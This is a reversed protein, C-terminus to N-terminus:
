PLPMTKFDIVFVGTRGMAFPKQTAYDRECSVRTESVDLGGACVSVTPVQAAPGPYITADVMPRFGWSAFAHIGWYGRLVNKEREGWTYPVRNALSEIDIVVSGAARIDDRHSKLVDYVAAQLRSAEAQRLALGQTSFLLTLVVAVGMWPRLRVALSAVVTGMGIAELISQRSEVLVMAAPALLLIASTLGVAAHIKWSRRSEPTQQAENIWRRSWWGM